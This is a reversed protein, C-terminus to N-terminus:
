NGGSLRFIHKPSVADSINLYQSWFYLSRNQFGGQVIYEVAPDRVHGVSWVVPASTSSVQGLDHAMGFVPWRDSVARFQTDQTNLLTTNNVFQSRVVEDEGSQYTTGQTQVNM